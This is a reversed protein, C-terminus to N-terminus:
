IEKEDNGGIWLMEISKNRNEVMGGCAAYYRM